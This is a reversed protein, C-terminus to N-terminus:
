SGCVISNDDDDDIDGVQNLIGSLYFINEGKGGDLKAVSTNTLKVFDSAGGVDLKKDVMSSTLYVIDSGGSGDITNILAFTLNVYDGGDGLQLDGIIDPSASTGVGLILDKGPGGNVKAVVNGTTLNLLDEGPGLDINRASAGTNLYVKDDGKGTFVDGVSANPYLDLCDDGDGFILPKKVVVGKLLIVCVGQNQKKLDSFDLSSSATINLCRVLPGLLKPSGVCIGNCLTNCRAYQEASFSQFRDVQVTPKFPCAPLNPGAGVMQVGVVLAAAVVLL